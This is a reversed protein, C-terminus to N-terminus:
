TKNAMDIYFFSFPHRTAKVAEAATKEPFLKRNATQLIMGPFTRLIRRIKYFVVFIGRCSPFRNFIGM